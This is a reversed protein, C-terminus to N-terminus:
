VAAQGVEIELRVVRGSTDRVAYVPLVGEAGALLLFVREIGLQGMRDLPGVTAVDSDPTAELWFGNADATELFAPDLVM